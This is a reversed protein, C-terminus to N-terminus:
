TKPAPDKITVTIKEWEAELAFEDLPRPAPDVLKSQRSFTVRSTSTRLKAGKVRLARRSEEAKAKAVKEVVKANKYQKALTDVQEDEIYEDDLDEHLYFVPCPFSRSDCASPLVGGLAQSEIQLVRTRIDKVSYWPEIYYSHHIQPSASDLTARNVRVLHLPLNRAHMYVSAQWKYKEWLPLSWSEDWADWEDQSQSKVEVVWRSLDPHVEKIYRDEIGDVHGVVWITKSVPLSVRTQRSHLPYHKHVVEEAAHGDEFVKAMKKPPPTAEYGLRQAILAKTCGGLASARYVILGSDDYVSPANVEQNGDTTHERRDYNYFPTTSLNPFLM